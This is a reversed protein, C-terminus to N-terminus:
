FIGQIAALAWHGVVAGIRRCALHGEVALPVGATRDTQSGHM